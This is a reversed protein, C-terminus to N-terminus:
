RHGVISLGLPRGARSIVRKVVEGDLLAAVYDDTEVSTPMQASNISERRTAARLQTLGKFHACLAGKNWGLRALPVDGFPTVGASTATLL